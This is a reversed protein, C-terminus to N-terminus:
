YQNYVKNGLIKQVEGYTGNDISRYLSNFGGAQNTIGIGLGIGITWPNGTYNTLGYSAVDVGFKTWDGATANSNLRLNFFDVTLLAGGPIKGLPGTIRTIPRLVDGSGKAAMDIWSM